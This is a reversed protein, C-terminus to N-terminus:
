AGIWGAGRSYSLFMEVHQRTDLNRMRIALQSQM